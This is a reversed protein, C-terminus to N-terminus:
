KPLILSRYYDVFSRLLQKQLYFSRLKPDIKRIAKISENVSERLSELTERDHICFAGSHKDLCANPNERLNTEIETDREEDTAFDLLTKLGEFAESEGKVLRFMYESVQGRYFVCKECPNVILGM